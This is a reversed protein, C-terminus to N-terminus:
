RRNNVKSNNELLKACKKDDYEAIYVLEMHHPFPSDNRARDKAGFCRDVVTFIFRVEAGTGKIMRAVYIIEEGSASLGDVIIYRQPKKPMAQIREPFDVGALDGFLVLPKDLLDGVEAALLVNGRASVAIADYSHREKRTTDIIRFAVMQALKRRTRADCCASLIDVYYQTKVKGTKTNHIGVWTQNPLIQTHDRVIQELYIVEDVPLIVNSVTETAMDPPLESLKKFFSTVVGNKDIKMIKRFVLYEKLGEIAKTAATFAAYLILLGPVIYKLIFEFATQM